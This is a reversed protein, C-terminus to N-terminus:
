KQLCERLSSQCGIGPGTAWIHFRLRQHLHKMHIAVYKSNSDKHTREMREDVYACVYAKYSELDKRNSILHPISGNSENECPTLETYVYRSMGSTNDNERTEVIM